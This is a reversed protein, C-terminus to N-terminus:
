KNSMFRKAKSPLASFIKDRWETASKLAKNKGGNKGDSFFKHKQYKENGTLIRVWWGRTIRGDRAAYDM